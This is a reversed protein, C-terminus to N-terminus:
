VISILPVGRILIPSTSTLDSSSVTTPSSSSPSSPDDPDPAAGEIDAEDLGGVRDQRRDAGDEDAAPDVPEAFDQDVARRQEDQGRERLVRFLRLRFGFRVAAAVPRLVALVLAMALPLLM